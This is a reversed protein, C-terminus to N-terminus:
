RSANLCDSIVELYDKHIDEVKGNAYSVTFIWPTNKKIILGVRHDFMNEKILDGVKM